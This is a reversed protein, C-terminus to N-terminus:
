INFYIISCNERFISWIGYFAYPWQISAAFWIIASLFRRFSHFFVVIKFISLYKCFPTSCLRCYDYSLLDFLYLSMALFNWDVHTPQNVTKFKWPNITESSHVVFTLYISLKFIQFKRALISVVRKTLFTITNFQHSFFFDVSVFINNTQVTFMFPHLAVPALKGTLMVVYPSQKRIRM